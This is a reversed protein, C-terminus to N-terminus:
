PFSCARLVPILLNAELEREIEDGAKDKDKVMRERIYRALWGAGNADLRAFIPGVDSTDELEDYL